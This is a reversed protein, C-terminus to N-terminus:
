RDEERRRARAREELAPLIRETLLDLAEDKWGEELLEAAIDLALVLPDEGAALRERRERNRRERDAANGEDHM